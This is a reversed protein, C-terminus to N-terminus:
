VGEVVIMNFITTAGARAARAERYLPSDYFAKAMEYTPFKVVVVRAPAWDGEVTECKGGRTLFEGGAEAVAKPSLRKYAEYKAPDSVLVETIVYASM